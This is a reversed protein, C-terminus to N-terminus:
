EQARRCRGLLRTALGILSQEADLNVLDQGHFLGTVEQCSSILALRVESIQDLVQHFREEDIPERSELQNSWENLGQLLEVLRDKNAILQNKLDTIKNRGM